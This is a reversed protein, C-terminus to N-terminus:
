GKDVIEVMWTSGDWRALKLDHSYDAIDSYAIVSNGMADFALSTNGVEIVTDVTELLWETGNWRAVRM